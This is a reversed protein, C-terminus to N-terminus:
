KLGLILEKNSILLQRVASIQKNSLHENKSLSYLDRMLLAIDLNTNKISNKNKANNSIGLLYDLSVNFVSAIRAVVDIRPVRTGNIYRSITVETTGVKEALDKQKMNCEDLLVTLRYSFDKLDFDM